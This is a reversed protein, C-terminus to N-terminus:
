RKDILFQDTAETLYYPYVLNSRTNTARILYQLDFHIKGEGEESDVIIDLLKIRPEHYLIATEMADKIYTLTSKDIKEFVMTDMNCGFGPQMVREGLQTSFLIILSQRIDEEGSVMVATKDALSFGPPFAWGQGLFSSNTGM